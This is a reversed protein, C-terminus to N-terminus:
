LKEALEAMFAAGYALCGEDAVFEANHLPASEGVGLRYFLSPYRAAYFGFDEATMRMPINVVAEGGFEELCVAIARKTLEPNNYVSPYGTKIEVDADVDYSLATNKAIEEVRKHAQARFEESMTRLTGEIYVEDPIINTAGDAIVRGFSLVAPTLANNNRSVITQMALVMAASAVVPDKLLHPMAAHGGRGRMTIHIEDTSAMFTGGRFGFVGVPLEPSVHQGVFCRPELGDFVGEKLVISAGGPHMEEGPQFLGWITGKYGNIKLLILAALLSTTHIDHGCAHMKGSKCAYPLNNREHIPLADMDARLVIPNEPKDGTLKALLGTGAVKVYPIAYEDLVAAVFAQTNYEEFSLEANQHIYRRWEVIRPMMKKALEFYSM